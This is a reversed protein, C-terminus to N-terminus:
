DSQRYAEMLEDETEYSKHHKATLRMAGGLKAAEGKPNVPKYERYIPEFDENLGWYYDRQHDWEIRKLRAKTKSEFWLRKIWRIIENIINKALKHFSIQTM